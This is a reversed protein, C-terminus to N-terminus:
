MDETSWKYAANTTAQRENMTKFLKQEFGSSRDVGDWHRGPKINYRNGFSGLGRRMWSQVPVGQPIKFGSGEIKFGEPLVAAVNDFNEKKKVLQAMPDGWRSRDKFITNLEKDDTYRAFPTNKAEKIDQAMQDREVKQKVGGGWEPKVREKERKEKEQKRAERVEELTKKGGTKKDRYQTQAGRGTMESGLQEFKEAELKKKKQLESTLQSAPILGAATGDTMKSLDTKSQEGKTTPEDDEFRSRRRPPSLDEGRGRRPPSLDEQAKQKRRRPPSLDEEQPQQPKSRRPPSLDDDAAQDCKERRPPSLDEDARDRQGRRPPSMDEDRDLTESKRPPSADDEEESDHRRRRPPSADEQEVDSDHRRRRPPSMDEQEKDASMSVWGSGDQADLGLYPRAALKEQRERIRRDGDTEVVIPADEEGDLDDDSDVAKLNLAMDQDYMKMGVTVKKRAVTSMRVQGDEGMVAVKKKKRKKRTEYDDGSTTNATTSVGGGLYRKLYDEKSSM